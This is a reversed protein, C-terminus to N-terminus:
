GAPMCQRLQSLWHGHSEQSSSWRDVATELNLAQVLRLGPAGHRRDKKTRRARALGLFAGRDHMIVPQGARRTRCQGSSDQVKDAALRSSKM